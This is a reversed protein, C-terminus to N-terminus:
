ATNSKSKRVVKSQIVPELNVWRVVVPEFENRRMASYYEMTGIYGIKKIWEDVLTYRPQKWTRAIIFPAATFVPTCTDKQITTKECCIGLLPTTPDYPLAYTEFSSELNVGGERDRVTDM